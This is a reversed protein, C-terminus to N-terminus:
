ALGVMARVVSDVAVGIGVLRIGNHRDDENEDVGDAHGRAEAGQEEPVSVHEAAVQAAALVGVLPPVAVTLCEVEQHVAIARFCKPELLDLEEALEQHGTHAVSGPTHAMDHVTGNSMWCGADLM